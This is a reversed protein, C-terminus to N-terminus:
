PLLRERLLAQVRGAEGTMGRADLVAAVVALYHAEEVVYEVGDPAGWGLYVLVHGEPIEAEGHEAEDPYTVGHGVDTNGFGHRAQAFTALEALRPWSRVASVVAQMLPTEPTVHYTRTAEDYRLVVASPAMPM